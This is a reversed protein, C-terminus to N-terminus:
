NLPAGNFGVPAGGGSWIVSNIGVGPAPPPAVGSITPPAFTITGTAGGAGTVVLSLLDISCGGPGSSVLVQQLGSGSPGCNDVEFLGDGFWFEPDLHQQYAAGSAVGGCLMIAAGAITAAFNAVWSPWRSSGLFM